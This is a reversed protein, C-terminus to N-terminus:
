CASVIQGDYTHYKMCDIAMSSHIRQFENTEGSIMKGGKKSLQGQVRVINQMRQEADSFGHQKTSKAPRSGRGKSVNFVKNKGDTITKPAERLEFAKALYGIRLHRFIHRENSPHTTHSTWARWTLEANKKKSTPKTIGM